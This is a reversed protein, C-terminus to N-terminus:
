LNKMETKDEDTIDDNSKKKLEDLKNKDSEQETKVNPL